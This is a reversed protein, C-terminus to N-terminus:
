FGLVSFPRYRYVREVYAARPSQTLTHTVTDEKEVYYIWLYDWGRKQLVVIDGVILVDAPGGSGVDVSGSFQYTLEWNENTKKSGRAGDFRVEGVKFPLPVGDVFITWPESNVCGTLQFLTTIYPGTMAGRAITRTITFNFVPVVIDVGEVSQATVNIGQKFDPAGNAIDAVSVYTGVTEHSYSIKQTGGTTDFSFSQDGPKQPERSAYNIKVTFLNGGLPDITYNQFPLGGLTDPATSEVLAVITDEDETAWNIAVIWVLSASSREVGQDSGRSEFKEIVTAM